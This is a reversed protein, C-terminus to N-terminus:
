LAGFSILTGSVFAQSGRRNMGQLYSRGCLLCALCMLVVWSHCPGTMSSPGREWRPGACSAARALLSKARAVQAQAVSPSLAQSGASDLISARPDLGQRPGRRPGSLGCHPNYARRGPSPDKDCM